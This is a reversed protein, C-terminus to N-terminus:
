SKGTRQNVMVVGKVHVRELPIPEEFAEVFVCAGWQRGGVKMRGAHSLTKTSVGDVVCCTGIPVVEDWSKQAEAIGHTVMRVPSSAEM